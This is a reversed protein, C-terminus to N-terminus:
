KKIYSLLLIILNLAYEMTQNNKDKMPNVEVFDIGIIDLEKLILEFCNIVEFPSLGFCVPTATGSAYAPDLVDIDFTIYTKGKLGLNNKAALLQKVSGVDYYEIKAHNNSPVGRLGVMIYKNLKDLKLSKTVFNGHHFYDSNANIEEFAGEYVDTHADFHIVNFPEQLSENFAKLIPYTISHDGGLGFPISNTLLINKYILETKEYIISNDESHHVFINGIDRLYDKEIIRKLNSKNGNPMVSGIPFTLFHHKDVLSIRESITRFAQPFNATGFDSSNGKGFPIGVFVIKNNYDDANLLPKVRYYRNRPLQCKYAEKKLDEKNLLIKKRVLFEFDADYTKDFQSNANELTSGDKFLFIFKMLEESILFQDLTIKNILKISVENKNEKSFYIFRAKYFKTM